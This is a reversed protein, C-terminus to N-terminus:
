FMPPGDHGVGPPPGNQGGGHPPGDNGWMRFGPHDDGPMKPMNFVKLNYTFTLMFYRQLVNSRTDEISTETVNHSISTNQNLLDFVSLKIEGQKNKFLKKGLGANWLFYNQNYSSNLGEYLQNTLDNQFFFGKWFTWNFTFNATHSFYRNNLSPQLTNKVINYNGNYSLTFDVNQSINSGLTIGQSITYSNSINIKDDINGPSYSYNLGTNLNLNSSIFRIPFGYVFVSRVNWSHDLNVPNTLQAGKKLTIGPALLTDKQAFYSRTSINNATYSGSLFAFINTSKDPNSFSFRSMLSHNYEQKLYPNGTSLKLPNSNDIVDQLQSISPANTSTRYFFRLNANKSFNYRVMVFPLINDFTKNVVFPPIPMTRSGNLDARQYNISFMANIKSNNLLYGIGARNTIYDNDYINSLTSDLIDYLNTTRNLDYTRKNATNNSYSYNYTLQLLGTKGIPETYTINSSVSYGKTLSNSKLDTHSTDSKISGDTLKKFYITQANSLNNPENSNSSGSVNITVSRGPKSFKHRFVLDNSLNYGSTHSDNVNNSGNLPTTEGMFNATTTQSTSHNNQFSLRPTLIFTNLTDLAYELRFNVRNNFNRNESLSQNNYYQNSDAVSSTIYHGNASQINKTKSNNYFYSGSIKFKAGWQDSYNLGISNTTTIGSQPGIMVNGGGSNGGRGRGGGMGGGRNMVGLFDQTAFNQQNINNSLGVISIRRNGEFFNLNGGLIYKDDTGYGASLKGFKGSRRDKKTILNITKSSNGDDFGTLQAQDSLKDFIQIKDIVDAPLNKLTLTPDEGFFPKGDVLVQKVTEGHATVTGNTSTIAPMKKILDEATADTNVKFAAANLETTDGKQQSVPVNGSIVVDKLVVDGRKMYLSGLDQNKNKVEIIENLKDYGLYTATLRYTQSNLNKVIFSGDEESLAFHNETSDKAATFIVYAGSLPSLKDKDFVKGTITNQATANMGAVIFILFMIKPYIKMQMFSKVKQIEKLDFHPGKFSIGAPHLEYPKQENTNGSFDPCSINRQLCNQKMYVGKVIIQKNKSLAV